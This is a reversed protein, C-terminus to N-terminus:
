RKRAEGEGERARSGHGDRDGGKQALGGSTSTSCVAAAERSGGEIRIRGHPSM